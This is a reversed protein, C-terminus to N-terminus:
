LRIREYVKICCYYIVFAVLSLELGKISSLGYLLSTNRFTVFSVSLTLLFLFIIVIIILLGLYLSKRLIALAYQLLLTQKEDDSYERSTFVQMSKVSLGFLTKSLSVFPFLGAFLFSFFFIITILVSATL